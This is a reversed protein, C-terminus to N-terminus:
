WRYKNMAYTVQGPTMGTIAALEKTTKGHEVTMYILNAGLDENDLRQLAQYYISQAHHLQAQLEDLGEIAAATRDSHETSSGGIKDWQPSTYYARSKARALRDARKDM